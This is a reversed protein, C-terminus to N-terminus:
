ADSKSAAYKEPNKYFVKKRGKLDGRLALMYLFEWSLGGDPNDAKREVIPENPHKNFHREVEVRLRNAISTRYPEPWRALQRAVMEQWTMAPDKPVGGYGYLPSRSYRAATSAGPVRRLMRQWLEPWCQAYIWLSALPEEGFPPCVRRDVYRVGVRAMVDYTLNYDWKLLQTATWVDDATWDYIPKCKGVWPACPDPSLWNDEVRHTVSMYRRLSEDARIGMILGVTRGDNPFCYSMSASIPERKHGPLSTIAGPPLERVWLGRAEPAWPHWYPQKPSCANRHEVPVCYWRFDVDPIRSVRELYEVTPPHIAEEDFCVVLLRRGRRRAEELALNLCVTSDKGGSFSVAVVDYEDFVRAIRERALDLVDRELFDKKLGM